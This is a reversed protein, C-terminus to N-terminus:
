PQKRNRLIPRALFGHSVGGVDFYGVIAGSSSLSRIHTIRMRGLTQPLLPYLEHIQGDPSWLVPRARTFPVRSFGAIWGADNIANAISQSDPTLGPLESLGEAVSYKFAKTVGTGYHYGVVVGNNNLDQANPDTLGPVTDFDIGTQPDPWFISHIYNGGDRGEGLVQNAENIKLGAVDSLGLRPLATIQGGPSWIAPFQPGFGIGPSISGTVFGHDNIDGATANDTELPTPLVSVQNTLTWLTARTVRGSGLDVDHYGAAVGHNNLGLVGFHNQGTPDPITAMGLSETWRYPVFSGPPTLYTNGVIVNADNGMIEKVRLVGVDTFTYQSQGHASAILGILLASPLIRSTM